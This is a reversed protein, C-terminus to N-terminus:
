PSNKTPRSFREPNNKAGLELVRDRRALLGDIQGDSLYEALNKQTRGSDFDEIRRKRNVVEL